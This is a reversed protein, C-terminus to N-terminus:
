TEACLSETPRTSVVRGGPSNPIVEGDRSKDAHVSVHEIRFIPFRELHKILKPVVQSCVGGFVM